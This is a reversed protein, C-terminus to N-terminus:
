GEGIGRKRRSVHRSLAACARDLAINIVTPFNDGIERIRIEGTQLTLALACVKDVRQRQPGTEDELRVFARRIRPAFRQLRQEVKEHAYARLREGDDVGRMFVRLNM